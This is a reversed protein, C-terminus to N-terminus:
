GSREIKIHAVSSLLGQKVGAMARTMERRMLPLSCMIPLAVNRGWALMGIDSQFFPTLIRSLSAYYRITSRRASYYRSCADEFGQANELADAFCVADALALNAGQGLHPSLAHAADGLCVLHQNYPRNPVSHRYTTFTTQSFSQASDLTEEALPCLNLVEDRWATYGREELVEM